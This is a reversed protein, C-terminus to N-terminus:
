PQKCNVGQARARAQGPAAPTSFGEDRRRVSMIVDGGGGLSGPASFDITFNLEQAARKKRALLILSKCLPTTANSYQAPTLYGILM